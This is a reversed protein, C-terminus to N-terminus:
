LPTRGTQSKRTEKILTRKTIEGNVNGENDVYIYESLWEGEHRALLPMEERISM